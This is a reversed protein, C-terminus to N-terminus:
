DSVMQQLETQKGVSERQLQEVLSRLEHVSHQQLIEEISIGGSGDLALNM